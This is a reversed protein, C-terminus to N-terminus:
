SNRSFVLGGGSWVRPGEVSNASVRWGVGRWDVGVAWLVGKSDRVYFINACGNTLLTGQEGNPQKKLLEWISALTTEAKDGLENLIPKDLSNKKLKSVKLEVEGQPAEEKHLFHQKFNDGFWAFKVAKINVTFHDSAFFKGTAPIKVTTIPSLLDSVVELGKMMKALEEAIKKVAVDGKKTVFSHIDEDTVGLAKLEAVLKETFGLVWGAASILLNARAKAM